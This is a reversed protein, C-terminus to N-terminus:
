NANGQYAEHTPRKFTLRLASLLFYLGGFAAYPALKAISPADGFAQITMFVGALASQGGSIMMFVQGGLKRRRIGVFLQLLGALLAWIGFVFLGGANGRVILAVVLVAATAISVVTNLRQGPNTRLGGSRQADLFNALADWAPYLVLLAGSVIAPVGMNSLLVVLAVWAFSVGARLFYYSRLTNM